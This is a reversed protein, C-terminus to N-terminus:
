QNNNETKDEGEDAALGTGAFLCFDDEPRPKSNWKDVPEITQRTNIWRTWYEELPDPYIEANRWNTEFDRTPILKGERRCKEVYAKAGQKLMACYKPFMEAEADRTKQNALPCLICGIRTYGQDYLECHPIHNTNLYEWVDQSTWNAIPCLYPKKAKDFGFVRWTDRRKPSEEWRVGIVKIDFEFPLHDHKVGCCWRQWRTPLSNREIGEILTHKFNKIIQCDPYHKRIFPILQPPEFRTVCYASQFKVGAEKLLHYCVQSDKGGSFACYVNGMGQTYYKIWKLSQTYKSDGFLDKDYISM